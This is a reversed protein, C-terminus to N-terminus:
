TEFLKCINGCEFTWENHMAYSNTTQFNHHKKIFKSLWKPQGTQELHDDVIWGPITEFLLQLTRLVYINSTKLINFPFYITKTLPYHHSYHQLYKTMDKWNIPNDVSSIVNYVSPIICKM